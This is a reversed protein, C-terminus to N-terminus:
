SDLQGAAGIKLAAFFGPEVVANASLLGHAKHYRHVAALKYSPVNPYLHHERHYNTGVLIATFVWSTYSRANEGKALGTNAHDVYPVMGLYTTAVLSPLVVLFVFLQLNLVALTVYAASAFAVLILNFIAFSRAVRRPFPYHADVSRGSRMALDLANRFFSAGSQMPGMFVRSFFSRYRSYSAFDPDKETNTYLHHPWHIVTYGTAVFLPIASSAGIGLLMSVHRNANLNGHFGEHALTTTYFMAMGSVPAILATLLLRVTLPLFETRYMLYAGYALGMWLALGHMICYLGAASNKEHFEKPLTTKVEITRM